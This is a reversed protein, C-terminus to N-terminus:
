RLMQEKQTFLRVKRQPPTVSNQCCSLHMYKAFYEDIRIFVCICLAATM